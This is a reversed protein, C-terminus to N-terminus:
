ARVLAQLGKEYDSQLKAQQKEYWNYQTTDIALESQTIALASSVLEIDENAQAGYVDTTASPQNNNRVDSDAVVSAIKSQLSKVSAYLVVLHEAEDPFSGIATGDYAVTPYQVEEYRWPNGEPISHITNGLIYYAPDTPTAFIMDDPDQARGSLQAPIQRSPHYIDGDSRQVMLVKGTNLTHNTGSTLTTSSISTCLKLLHLPLHNIIEVAGDTLFQTLEARSPDTSSGSIALNTLGNVQSEFDM